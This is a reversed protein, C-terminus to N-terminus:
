FSASTKRTAKPASPESSASPNGLRLVCRFGVDPLQASMDAGARHWAAWDEGGGKVVRQSGTEAREPGTWNRLTSRTTKEFAKRHANPQYFDLVWERANGALDYIGFPSQDGAFAAITTISQPTRPRPWVPRGNGWPTAFGKSGRAAMEFEAETPLDKGAWMAYKHAVGWALGLVPMELSANANLAPPPVTKKADRLEKRQSEYQGVTVETVDMYFADLAVFFAPQTEEPGQQSGVVGSGAPVYAMQAGDKECRIRWPAGNEAAGYQPLPQFGEPLKFTTTAARATLTSNGVAMFHASDSGPLGEAVVLQDQPNISSASVTMTAGAAEVVLVNAPDENPFPNVPATKGKPKAPKPAVPVGAAPAAAAQPIPIPRPPAAVPPKVPPTGGCGTSSGAWLLLLALMSRMRELSPKM